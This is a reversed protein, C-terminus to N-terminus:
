WFFTLTMEIAELYPTVFHLKNVSVSVYFVTLYQSKLINQSELLSSVTYINNRILLMFIYITIMEFAKFFTNFLSLLNTTVAEKKQM